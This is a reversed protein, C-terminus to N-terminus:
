GGVVEQMDTGNSSDMWAAIFEQGNWTNGTYDGMWNNGGNTNPNSFATTLQTNPFSQGGDSSIAAFAQYDIDNPDNRRDLWSVGVLGVNNVSISPFFQDHTDSKAALSVPLSWTIGGDTSSVVQVRLYSGTWTYMTVYLNGAHSGDGNDVAIVPYNDVGVGPDSNPLWWYHPMGVTAIQQAPSWTNGGDTSRSFMFHVIPCLGGGSGSKGRCHMWTAYVTGDKGVAMRTFRDEEPYQQVSDVPVQTWTAGGDSSHSILVQDKHSGPGLSMVGSVYISNAWRSPSTDVTLFTDYPETDGPQRLAVFPKSWHIGDSSKQIAVLGYGMGESDFYLGAVYAIGNRDYGVAPENSPQYVRQKSIISSMCLVRQWTSGRDRSLHFGLPQTCNGDFSSLLLEKQNTPNTVIHSDTVFGSGESALTPPLVCPAPSCYFKASKAASQAKAEGYGVLFWALLIIVLALLLQYTTKMTVEKEGAVASLGFSWQYLM